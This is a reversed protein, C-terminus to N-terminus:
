HSQGAAPRPTLRLLSLHIAAKLVLAADRKSGRGALGHMYENRLNLGLPECLLVWFFRWWASDMVPRLSQLVEGLSRVGGATAGRPERYVVGGVHMLLRRLVGEIRPVAVHITEDFRGNWFHELARAFADAEHDSILDSHFFDLLEESQGPGYKIRIRDLADQLFIAHISISMVDQRAVAFAKKADETELIQIPYGAAHTVVQSMLFQFPFERM